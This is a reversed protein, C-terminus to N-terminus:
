KTGGLARDTLHDTEGETAVLALATLAHARSLDVDDPRPTRPGASLGGVAPRPRLLASAAEAHQRATM